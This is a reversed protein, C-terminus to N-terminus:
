GSSEGREKKADRKMEKDTKTIEESPRARPRCARVNVCASVVNVIIIPSIHVGNHRELKTALVSALRHFYAVASEVGLTSIDRKSKLYRRTM